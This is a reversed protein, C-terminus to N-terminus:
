KGDGEGKVDATNKRLQALMADAYAFRARERTKTYQIKGNIDEYSERHENVDADTAMGALWTRTSMGEPHECIIHGVPCPFAPGGDDIKQKNM